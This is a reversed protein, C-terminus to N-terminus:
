VPLDGHLAALAEVRDLEAVPVAIHESCTLHHHGLRDACEAVRALDEISAAAEWPGRAGPASTVVPTDLALKV